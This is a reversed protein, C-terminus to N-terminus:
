LSARTAREFTVMLTRDVFKKSGNRFIRFKREGMRLQTDLILFEVLQFLRVLVEAEGSASVLHRHVARLGRRGERASSSIHPLQIRAGRHESSLPHSRRPGNRDRGIATIGSSFRVIRFSFEAGREAHAAVFHDLCV